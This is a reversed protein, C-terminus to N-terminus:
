KSFLIENCEPFLSNSRRRSKFAHECEKRVAETADSRQDDGCDAGHQKQEQHARTVSLCASAVIKLTKFRM